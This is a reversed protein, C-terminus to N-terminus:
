YPCASDTMYDHVVIEGTAIDYAAKYVAALMEPTLLAENYQDLAFGVGRQALGLVEFGPTFDGNMAEMLTDYVAVDVRKLM